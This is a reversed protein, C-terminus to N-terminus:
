IGPNLLKRIEPILDTAALGRQGSVAACRDGAVAHVAVGTRTALSASLGQALLGGIVGSLVDGMGATSMGPNGRSCLSIGDGDHILSGVGKLVVTGGYREQLAAVAHFRDAQVTEGQLLVGAEGPHPTLVWGTRREPQQALMNLGDADIVMPREGAQMAQRYIEESWASRGLGPGLVIVSARELMPQLALGDAVGKVML